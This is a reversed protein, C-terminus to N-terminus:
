AEETHDQDCGKHERQRAKRRKVGEQEGRPDSESRPGARARLELSIRVALAMMAEGHHVRGSVLISTPRLEGHMTDAVCCSSHSLSPNSSPSEPPRQPGFTDCPLSLQPTNEEPM